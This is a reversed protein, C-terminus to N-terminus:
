IRQRGFMMLPLLLARVRLSLSKMLLQLVLERAMKLSSRTVLTFLSRFAKLLSLERSEHVKIEKPVGVIM